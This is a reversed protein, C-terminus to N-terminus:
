YATKMQHTVHSLNIIRECNHERIPECDVNPTIKRTLTIILTAVYLMSHNWSVQVENRIILNCYRLVRGQANTIQRTLAM